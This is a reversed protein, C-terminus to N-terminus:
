AVRAAIGPYDTVLGAEDYRLCATFGLSPAAYDYRQGSAEDRIRAYVQDLREATVTVARLYAAPADARDGPRLALRRVPFANTMASSELDVDLCGDLQPAPSGDVQWHGAGDSELLASRAGASTRATVWATRATWDAALEIRYGAIWTQGDELACTSGEVLWGGPRATFYAVEFGARAGHHQWCATVPLPGFSV